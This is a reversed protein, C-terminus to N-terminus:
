IAPQYGQRELQGGILEQLRSKQKQNLLRRGKGISDANVPHRVNEHHSFVAVDDNKKAYVNSDIMHPNYSLGLFECASKLQKQPDTVLSEYHIELYRDKGTASFSQVADISQTWRLAADELTTQLGAALYSQVVDVGDRVMHIYRADPFVSDIADLYFSNLPTKDGWRQGTQGTQQGHFRFFRDLLLALSQEGADANIMQLVLPRLSVGFVEFHRHFEFRSYILHVLDLWQMTGFQKFLNITPGLVYTEPPIHVQGGAELLRRLLTNGSRGSGVVFFPAFGEDRHLPLQTASGLSSSTKRKIGFFTLTIEQRCRIPKPHAAGGHLRAM